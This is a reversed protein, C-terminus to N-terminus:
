GILKVLAGLIRGAVDPGASNIEGYWRDKSNRLWPPQDDWEAKPIIYGLEDNALGLVFQYPTKLHARLTPEFPAGAFDAGPYRTLGGNVLEPYIEGPITSIEAVPKGSSLLEIYDVETETDRGTAYKLKGYGPFDRETTSPDPKGDTYLPKRGGFIGAAGAVRFHDNVLPVFIVAKRIVLSDVQVNAGSELARETLEGILNGFLEAKRWTNDAALEGSVPDQLAVESGQTSLQGISGNFFVATGGGHEELHRCLWHPYDATIETNRSGLTEPHDSFNLVTAIPKGNKIAMIRMAFLHPDKIYPPRSRSQLLNYLPSDDHALTLKAERMSRAAHAATDAVKDDLWEMYKENLGSEWPSSGWLGMTDISEHVHSSAVILQTIEPARTKVRQRIKLVDDYFLGIADAECMALTNEAAALAVCRVWTDDHIGTAV